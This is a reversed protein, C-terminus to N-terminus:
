RKAPGCVVGNRVWVSTQHSSKKKPGLFEMNVSAVNQVLSKLGSVLLEVASM